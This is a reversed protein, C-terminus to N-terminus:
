PSNTLLLQMGFTAGRMDAHKRKVQSIQTPTYAGRKVLKGRVTGRQSYSLMSPNSNVPKHNWVTRCQM